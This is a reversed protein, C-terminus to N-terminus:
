QRVYLGQVQIPLFLPHLSPSSPYKYRPSSHGPLQHSSIHYPTLDAFFNDTSRNGSLDVNIGGNWFLFDILKYLSALLCLASRSFFAEEGAPIMWNMYKNELLSM